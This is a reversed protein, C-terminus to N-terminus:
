QKDVRGTGETPGPLVPRRRLQTFPLQDRGAPCATETEPRSPSVRLCAEVFCLRTLLSLILAACEQGGSGAYQKLWRENPKKCWYKFHGEGAALM